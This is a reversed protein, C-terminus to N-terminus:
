PRAGMRAHKQRKRSRTTSEHVQGRGLKPRLAPFFGFCQFVNFNSGTRRKDMSRRRGKERTQGCVIRMEHSELTMLRVGGRGRLGFRRERAIAVADGSSGGDGGDGGM